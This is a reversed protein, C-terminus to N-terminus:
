QGVVCIHSPDFFDDQCYNISNMMENFCDPKKRGHRIVKIGHKLEFEDAM